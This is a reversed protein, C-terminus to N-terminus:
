ISDPIQINTVLKFQSMNISLKKKLLFNFINYIFYSISHIYKKKTLLNQPLNIKITESLTQSNKDILVLLYFLNTNFDEFLIDYIKDPSTDIIDNSDKNKWNFKNHNLYDFNIEKLDDSIYKKLNNFIVHNLYIKNIDININM